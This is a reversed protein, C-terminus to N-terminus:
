FLKRPPLDYRPAYPQPIGLRRELRQLWPLEFQEEFREWAAPEYGGTYNLPYRRIHPPYPSYIPVDYPLYHHPM